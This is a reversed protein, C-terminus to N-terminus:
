SEWPFNDEIKSMSEEFIMHRIVEVQNNYQPHSTIWSEVNEETLDDYPVFSSGDAESLSQIMTETRTVGNEILTLYYEVKYVINELSETSGKHLAVIRIRTDM